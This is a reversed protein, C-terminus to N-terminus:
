AGAEGGLERRAVGSRADVEDLRGAGVLVVRVDGVLLEGAVGGTGVAAPFRQPDDGLHVVPDALSRLGKAGPAVPQAGDACVLAALDDVSSSMTLRAPALRGGPLVRQRRPRRSGGM